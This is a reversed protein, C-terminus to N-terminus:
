LGLVELLQDIALEYAQYSALRPDRAGWGVLRSLSAKLRSYDIWNPERITKAYAIVDLIEPDIAVIEAWTTVPAPESLPPSSEVRPVLSLQGSEPPDTLHTHQIM